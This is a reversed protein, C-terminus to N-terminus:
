KKKATTKTTKKKPKSAPEEEKKEPVLEWAGSVPCPVTVVAGTLKNRYTFM